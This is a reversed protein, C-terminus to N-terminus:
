KEEFTFNQFLYYLYDRKIGVNLDNHNEFMELISNVLIDYDKNITNNITQAQYERVAQIIFAAINNKAAISINQSELFNILRKALDVQM